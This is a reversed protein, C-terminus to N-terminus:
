EGVYIEGDGNRYEVGPKPGMANEAQGEKVPATEGAKGPRTEPAPLPTKDKKTDTM